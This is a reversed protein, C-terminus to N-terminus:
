WRYLFLTMAQTLQVATSFEVVVMSLSVYTITSWWCSLKWPLGRRLAAVRGDRPFRRLIAEFVINISYGVGHMLGFVLFGWSFQHWLGIMVFTAIAAIIAAPLVARPGLTRAIAVSFPTYVLDRSLESLTIHWRTWFEKMSTSLIPSDFNEKVPIGLLASAGIVIHTFGAFNFYLYALSGYSALILDAVGHRFGDQWLSAFSVQYAITALYRVMIYGLLIRVMGRLLNITTAPMQGAMGRLFYGLPSIPGIPITLPFFLFSVYAFFSVGLKADKRTEMVAQCMRFAMYSFGILHWATQIKVVVLPVLPFLLGVVYRVGSTRERSLLYLFIWHASAFAVYLAFRHLDDPKYKPPWSLQECFFFSFVAAVNLLSFLMSKIFPPYKPRLLVNGALVYAFIAGGVRVIEGAALGSASGPWGLFELNM